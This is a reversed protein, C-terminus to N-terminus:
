AAGIASSLFHKCLQPGARGHAHRVQVILGALLSIPAIPNYAMVLLPSAFAFWTAIREWRALEAWRGYLLIAFGLSAVTLDYNFIYPMMIATASASIFALQKPHANRAQWALGMAAAAFACQVGTALMIPFGRLAVYASPMMFFYFKEGSANMIRAQLASTEVLWQRWLDFGFALGSLVALAGAVALAILIAPLTRRHLLTLAIFLGLHPKVTLLGAIIGAKRPAPDIHRFFLLWLGGIIFGYHGWWLNIIAAPTAIAAALPLQAPMYSRAAWLFFGAGALTWLILAPLYPLAGFPIALFLSQPPYSYNYSDLPGFIATQWSMYAAYDYLRDLQGTLALRGGSWVNLFDRGIVLRSETLRVGDLQLIDSGIIVVGLLTASLWLAWNLPRRLSSAPSHTPM